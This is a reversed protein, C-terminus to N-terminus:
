GRIEKVALLVPTFHHQTHEGFLIGTATVRKGLLKRYKTYMDRDLVLQVDTVRSRKVDFENDKGANVCAAKDLHLIWVVEKQESANVLTRRSISGTLTATDPEYNLCRQVSRASLDSNALCPLAAFVMLLVLWFVKKHSM